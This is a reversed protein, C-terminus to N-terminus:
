FRDSWWIYPYGSPFLTDLWPLVANPIDVGEDFQIESASRYGMLMQTLQAQPITMSVGRHGGSKMEVGTAGLRLSIEGIDTSIRLIGQWDPSTHRWRNSLEPLLKSFTGELNILRMMGGGDAPWGIRVSCGYRKCAFAMPHDPPILLQIYEHGFRQARDALAKIMTEWVGPHSAGVESVVTGDDTDDQVFYGLVEDLHNVVVYPLPKVQFGSGKSFGPWLDSRLVTGTRTANNLTYIEIITALDEEKWPRVHFLAHAETAPEVALSVRHEFPTAVYGFKPYFNRIGFLMSVDYGDQKMYEISRTIVYRSYGRLRHKEHTSVGAIGGMRLTVSGVRMQHDVIWLGSVPEKEDELYLQIVYWRPDQAPDIRIEM